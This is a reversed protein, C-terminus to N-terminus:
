VGTYHTSLKDYTAQPTQSMMTKTMDKAELTQLLVSNGSALAAEFDELKRVDLDAMEQTVVAAGAVNEVGHAAVVFAVATPQPM